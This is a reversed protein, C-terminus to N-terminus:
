VQDDGSEYDRQAYTQRGAKEKNSQVIAMLPILGKAKGFKREDYSVLWGQRIWEKIENSYERRM